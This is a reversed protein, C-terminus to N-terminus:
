CSLDNKGGTTCFIKNNIIDYSNIEPLDVKSKCCINHASNVIIAETSSDHERLTLELEKKMEKLIELEKQLSALRSTSNKLNQKIKSIETSLHENTDSTEVATKQTHDLQKNLQDLNYNYDELTTDTNKINNYIVFGTAAPKIIFLFLLISLPVLALAYYGTNNKKM